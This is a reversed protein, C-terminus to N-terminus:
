VPNDDGKMFPTNDRRTNHEITLWEHLNAYENGQGDFGECNVFDYEAERLERETLGYQEAVYAYTGAKPNTPIKRAIM